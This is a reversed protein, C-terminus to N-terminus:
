GWFYLTLLSEKFATLRNNFSPYQQQKLVDLYTIYFMNLTFM